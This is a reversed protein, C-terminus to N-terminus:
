RKTNHKYAKANDKRAALYGRRYAKSGNSLPKTGVKKEGTEADIYVRKDKKLSEAYLTARVSPNLLVKKGKPNKKSYRNEVFKM